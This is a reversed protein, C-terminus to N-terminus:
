GWQGVNRTTVVYRCQIRKRQAGARFHEISRIGGITGTKYNPNTVVHIGSFEGYAAWSVQMYPPNVCSTNEGIRSIMADLM